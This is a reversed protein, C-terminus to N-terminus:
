RAALGVEDREDHRLLEAAAREDRCGAARREAQLQARQGLRADDDGVDGRHRAQLAGLAVRGVVEDDAHEDGVQVRAREARDVVRPREADVVRTGDREREVFGLRGGELAVPVAGAGRHGEVEALRGVAVDAVRQEGIEADSVASGPVTTFTTM